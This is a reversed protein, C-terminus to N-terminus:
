SMLAQNMTDHKRYKPVYRSRDNNKEFLKHGENLQLSGHQGHDGAFCPLTICIAYLKGSNRASCYALVTAFLVLALFLKAM